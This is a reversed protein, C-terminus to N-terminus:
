AVGAMDPPVAEDHTLSHAAALKHAKAIVEAVRWGRRWAALEVGALKPPEGVDNRYAAKGALYCLILKRDDAVVTWWDHRQPGWRTRMGRM